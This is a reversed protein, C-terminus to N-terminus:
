KEAFGFWRMLRGRPVNPMADPAAIETKSGPQSKTQIVAAVRDIEATGKAAIMTGPLQRVSTIWRLSCMCGLEQGPRNIEDLYGASGVTMLGEDIAWSGRITYVLGNRQKHDYTKQYEGQEDLDSYHWIAALPNGALVFIHEIEAPFSRAKYTYFLQDWRVLYRLEKKIEIIRGKAAKDKSGGVPVEALFERLMSQFQSVLNELYSEAQSRYNEVCWNFREIISPLLTDFVTAIHSGSSSVNQTENGSSGSTIRTPMGRVQVVSELFSRCVQEYGATAAQSTPILAHASNLLDTYICDLRGATQPGSKLFAALKDGIADVAEKIDTIPRSGEM